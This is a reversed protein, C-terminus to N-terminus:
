PGQGRWTTAHAAPECQAGATARVSPPPSESRLWALDRRVAAAAGGQVALPPVTAELNALLPRSESEFQRRLTGLVRRGWARVVDLHNAVAASVADACTDEVHREAWRTVLRPTLRTWAPPVTALSVPPLDMPPVERVAALEQVAVLAAGAARAADALASAAEDRLTGLHAALTEAPEHAARLIAARVRDVARDHPEARQIADALAAGGRALATASVHAALEPLGALERETQELRAGVERVGALVGAADNASGREEGRALRQHLAAASRARLVGVKRGLTRTAADRAKGALPRVGHEIWGALLSAREPVVSVPRVDVPARLREALHQRVYQAV